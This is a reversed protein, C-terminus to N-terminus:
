PYYRQASTQGHSTNTTSSVQDAYLYTLGSVNRMVVKRGGFYYYNAGSEVWDWVYITETGGVDQWVRNGDADYASDPMFPEPMAEEVQLIFLLM